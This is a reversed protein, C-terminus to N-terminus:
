HCSHVLYSAFKRFKVRSLPKTLVDAIMDDTGRHEVDINGFLWQERPFKTRIDYHKNRANTHGNKVNAIAGENDQYILAPFNPLDPVVNSLSRCLWICERTAESLATLEAEPTSLTILNQRKSFWSIPSDGIVTFYGTMSRRTEVDSAFDADCFCRLKDLNMGGLTLGHDITGNVYRIIRM